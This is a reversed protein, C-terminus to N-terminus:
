KARKKIIRAKLFNFRKLGFAVSIFVFIKGRVIVFEQLYRTLIIVLIPSHSSQLLAVDRGKNLNCHDDRSLSGRNNEKQQILRKLIHPSWQNRLLRYLFWFGLLGGHWGSPRIGTDVDTEIVQTRAHLRGFWTLGCEAHHLLM